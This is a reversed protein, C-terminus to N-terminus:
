KGPWNIVEVKFNLLNFGTRDSAGSDLVEAKMVPNLIDEGSTVDVSVSEEKGDAPAVEKSGLDSSGGPGCVTLKFSNPIYDGQTPTRYAVTFRYTCGKWLRIASGTKAPDAYIEGAVNRVYEGTITSLSRQGIFHINGDYIGIAMQNAAYDIGLDNTMVKYTTGPSYVASKPDQKTGWDFHQFNIAARTISYAGSRNLSSGDSADASFGPWANVTPANVTLKITKTSTNGLSDVAKVTMLNEGKVQRYTYEGDIDALPYEYTIEPATDFDSVSAMATIEDKTKRADGFDFTLMEQLEIVPDTADRYFNM